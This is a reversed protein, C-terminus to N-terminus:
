NSHKIRKVFMFIFFFPLMYTLLLTLKHFILMNKAPFDNVCGYSVKETIKDIIPKKLRSEYVIYLSDKHSLYYEMSQHKNAVKRWQPEMTVDHLRWSGNYYVECLFHGPGEKYGLGISRVNIKKLKLLEMFVITQQSCLGEPHKLIDDPDVIASMHSWLLKGSLYAIWNEALSYNSVGHYFRDKAFSSVAQVYLSTDFNTSYISTYSSDIYNVAKNLSNVYYLSPKFLEDKKLEKDNLKHSLRGIFPLISVFFLLVFIIRCKDLLIKIM